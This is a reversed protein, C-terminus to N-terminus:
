LPVRGGRLRCRFVSGPDVGCLRAVRDSQLGGCNVVYRASRPGRPTELVVRDAEARVATVRAGTTVAGGGEVLATAYARTVEVYDVVGTEPVVLGGIGAVHPEIDRMEGPGVKRLGRLGNAIGRALLDDLRPLEDPRTAVVLKGCRSHAIGREELFAYLLDRGRACNMAKLSGPTYYLGSHIVGSNHGTQHAAVRDEAELVEVSVGPRAQLALATACGVVGGGIVAVDVPRATGPDHM